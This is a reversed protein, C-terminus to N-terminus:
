FSIVSYATGVASMILVVLLVCGSGRSANYDHMMKARNREERAEARVLWASEVAPDRGNVYDCKPCFYVEPYYSHAEIYEQKRKKDMGAEELRWLLQKDYISITKNNKDTIYEGTEDKRLFLREPGIFGCRNCEHTPNQIPLSM